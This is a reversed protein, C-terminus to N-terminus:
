KENNDQFENKFGNKLDYYMFLFEKAGFFKMKSPRNKSVLVYILLNFNISVKQTFFVYIPSM